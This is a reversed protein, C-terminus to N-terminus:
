TESQLFEKDQEGYSVAKNKKMYIHIVQAKMDLVLTFNKKRDQYIWPILEDEANNVRGLRNTKKIPYSSM